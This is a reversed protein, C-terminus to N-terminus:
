TLMQKIINSAIKGDYLGDYKEKLEKMVLGMGKPGTIGNADIFEKIITKLETDSLQKPIFSELVERERELIDLTDSDRREGCAQAFQENNKIFKKVTAIVEADTSERMQNKGVAAAEAYLTTLLSIEVNLDVAEKMQKKRLTTQQEKIKSLLM